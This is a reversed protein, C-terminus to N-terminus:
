IEKTKITQPHNTLLQNLADIMAPIAEYDLAIYDGTQHISIQDSFIEDSVDIDVENPQQLRIKM